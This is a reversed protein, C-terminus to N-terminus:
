ATGHRCQRLQEFLCIAAAAAVNLSDLEGAQTIRLPQAQALLEPGIGAGENGFVWACPPRLDLEFISQKANPMTAIVPVTAANALAVLDAHEDIHLHFHAGMAARLIKPSWIAASGTSSVVRKIGACVASRLISGVNGPDQIRDLLVVGDTLPLIEGQRPIDIVFVIEPGNAVQSLAGFLRDDLVTVHREDLRGVLQNVEDIQLARRSVACAGPAGRADLYAACLHIGDILTQGAKRRERSASGLALMQRYGANDQSDVFKM